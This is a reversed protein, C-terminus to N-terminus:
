SFKKALKPVFAKLFNKLVCISGEIESFYNEPIIKPPVLIFLGLYQKLTNAVEARVRFISNSIFFHTDDSGKCSM